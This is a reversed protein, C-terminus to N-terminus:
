GWRDDDETATVKFGLRADAAKILLEKKLGWDDSAVPSPILHTIGWRDDGPGTVGVGSASSHGLGLLTAVGVALLASKAAVRIRITSVKM